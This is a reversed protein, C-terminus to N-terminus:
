ILQKRLWGSFQEIVFVVTFVMVLVGGAYGWELDRLAGFLYWGIGGGGVIGLIASARINIDFLYLLHGVYAPVAQPFASAALEQSWTAGTSRVGDRADEDIEELSDSLLRLAFAFTGTALALTGAFPGLGVAVVFLLAVILEPVARMSVTLARICRHLFRSPSTNQAALFSLVFAGSGGLITAAFAISVSELMASLTDANLFALDTPVLRAFVSGVEGLGGVLDRVSLHQSYWSLVTLGAAVVALGHMARRESTWPQRLAHAEREVHVLEPKTRLARFRGRSRIEVGLLRRRVYSGGLELTVAIAGVVLAVGLMLDYDRFTKYQQLLVGLGGAGVYGLIASTRFNIELRYLATAVFSPMVQSLVSTSLVQIRRAGTARVADIPGPEVQEIADAFLKGVMGIAHLGLALVGPLVGIGYVRVFIAGLALDPVARTVTIVGRAVVRVAPHPTTNRAALFGLPFSLLVALVTGLFAMAFTEFAVEVVLGADLWRPPLMLGILRNMSSAGDVLAAPSVGADAFAFVGAVVGLLSLGVFRVRRADWPRRLAVREASSPTVVAM